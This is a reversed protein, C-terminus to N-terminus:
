YKRKMVRKLSHKLRTKMEAEKALCFPVTGKTLTITAYRFKNKFAVNVMHNDPNALSDMGKFGDLQHTQLCVAHLLLRGPSFKAFAEDYATKWTFVHGNQNLTILSAIVKRNLQLEHIQVQGSQAFTTIIKRGFRTTQKRQLLASGQRGKWSNAELALFREFATHVTEPTQSQIFEVSGLSQLNRQYTRLRKPLSSSSPPSSQWAREQPLWSALRWNHTQATERILDPVTGDVAHYPLTLLPWKSLSAAKEFLLNLAHPTAEESVLLTGLPGYESVPVKLTKATIGERSSYVPLAAVARQTLTDITLVVSVQLSPFTRTLEQLFSPSLFPNPTITNIALHEWEQQFDGQARCSFAVTKYPPHKM